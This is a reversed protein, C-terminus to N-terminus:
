DCIEETYYYKDMMKDFEKTWLPIITDLQDVYMQFLSIVPCYITLGLIEIYQVGQFICMYIVTALMAFIITAVIDTILIKREVKSINRWAKIGIAMKIIINNLM